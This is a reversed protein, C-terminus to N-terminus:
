KSNDECIELIASYVTNHVVKEVTFKLNDYVVTDGPVPIRQLHHIIFGSVTSVAINTDDDMLDDYFFDEWDKLPLEGLVRYKSEGIQTVIAPKNESSNNRDMKGVVEELISEINVIGELGGYEDVVGVVSEDNKLMEDLLEDVRKTEPVFTIPKVYARIVSRKQAKLFLDRIYVVGIPNNETGQYVPIFFIKHKLGIRIAEAVKTTTPCMTVDVRPKMIERAKLTSLEVIDDIVEGAQFNFHGEEKSISMLMKLEDSTINKTNSSQKPELKEAIWSLIIRAPTALKSWITLPYVALMALRMSYNIGIAKPLIEGLIIVSILVVLGAVAQYTTGLKDGIAGIFVTSSSFFLINVLLNGFLITVLLKSPDKFLRIIAHATKSKSNELEILQLRSLSFLATETSSFFASLCLLVCMQLISFKYQLILELM